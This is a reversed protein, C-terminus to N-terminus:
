CLIFLIKGGSWFLIFVNINTVYKTFVMWWLQITFKWGNFLMIDIINNYKRQSLLLKSHQLFGECVGFLFVVLLFFFYASIDSQKVYFCCSKLFMCVSVICHRVVTNKQLCFFCIKCDLQRKDGNLVAWCCKEIYSVGLLCIVDIYRKVIWV